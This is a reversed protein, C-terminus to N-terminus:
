AKEEDNAERLERYHRLADLQEFLAVFLVALKMAREAGIDPSEALLSSALLYVRESM